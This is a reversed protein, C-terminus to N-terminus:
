LLDEEYYRSRAIDCGACLETAYCGGECQMGRGNTCQLYQTEGFWEEDIIAGCVGEYSYPAM